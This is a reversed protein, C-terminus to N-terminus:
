EKKPRGRQRFGNPELSQARRWTYVSYRSVGLYSAIRRDSYGSYYMREINILKPDIFCGSREKFKDCNEAACGRSKGEMLIYDCSLTARSRYHCKYCCM